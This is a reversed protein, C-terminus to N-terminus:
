TLRDVAARVAIPRGHNRTQDLDDVAVMLRFPPILLPLDEQISPDGHQIDAHVMGHEALDPRRHEHLRARVDVPVRRRDRFGALSREGHDGAAAVGM